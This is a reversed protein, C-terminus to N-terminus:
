TLNATNRGACRLLPTRGFRDRAELDAGCGVLMIMISVMNDNMGAALLLPTDGNQSVEDVRAGDELLQRVGQVDVSKVANILSGM